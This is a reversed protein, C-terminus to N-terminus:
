KKVFPYVVTVAGACVSIVGAIIAGYSLAYYERLKETIDFANMAFGKSCFMLIGGVITLLGAAVVLLKNNSLSKVFPIVATLISGLVVLLLAFFAGTNFAVDAVEGVGTTTTSGITTTWETIATGGFIMAFGKYQTVTESVSGITSKIMPLVGYIVIALAGLVAAILNVVNLGKSNKKAM